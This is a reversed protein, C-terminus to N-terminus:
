KKYGVILVIQNIGAAKLQEIERELLLEGKVRFLGKPLINSLPLCRSSIGAAMIIANDVKYPEMAKYGLETVSFDASILKEKQLDDLINRLEEESINNNEMHMNAAHLKKQHIAKIVEFQNRTM